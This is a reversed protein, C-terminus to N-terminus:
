STNLSMCKILSKVNATTERKVELKQNGITLNKMRANAAIM